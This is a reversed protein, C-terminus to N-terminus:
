LRPPWAVVTARQARQTGTAYSGPPARPRAAAAAAASGAAAAPGGPPPPGGGSRLKPARPSCGLERRASWSTKRKASIVSSCACSSCGSSRSAASPRSAITRARAPVPFVRTYRRTATSCSTRWGGGPTPARTRAGERSSTMCIARSASISQLYWARCTTGSMPPLASSLSAAVMRLRRGPRRTAVGPRSASCRSSVGRKPESKSASPVSTRSSHSWRNSSCTSASRATNPPKGGCPERRASRTDAVMGSSTRLKAAWM